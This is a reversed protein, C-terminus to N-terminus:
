REEEGRVRRLAKEAARRVDGDSDELGRRLAETVAASTDGVLGLVITAARRMVSDEDGTVEILGPMATAGIAELVEMSAVRTADDGRALSAVLIRPTKACLAVLLRMAEARAFDRNGTEDLRKVRAEADIRAVLALLTRAGEDRRDGLRGEAELEWIGSKVESAVTWDSDTAFTMLRGFHELSRTCLFAFGRAACARRARDPSRGLVDLRAVLDVNASLHEFVWPLEIYGPVVAREILMAEVRPDGGLGVGALIALAPEALLRDDALLGILGAQAAVAAPGLQRLGLLANERVSYDPDALLQELRPVAGAACPGLRGVASATFMRVALDPDSLARIMAPAAPAAAESLGGLLRAAESRASGPYHANELVAVLTPIGAVFDSALAPPVVLPALRAGPRYPPMCMWALPRLLAEVREGRTASAIAAFLHPVATAGLDSVVRAAGFRTSDDTADLVDILAPLAVPGWAVLEAEAATAIERSSSALRTISAAIQADRHLRYAVLAIATALAVVAVAVGKSV